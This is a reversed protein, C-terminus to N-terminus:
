EVILNGKMGMARHSGVSCYYEFTGVQDAVFEVYTSGGAEVQQTRADFEDVVWDHFGSTSTFEIRVRDGQNVRLEPNDVGGMMFKFNEGTIVFTVDPEDSDIVEDSGGVMEGDTSGNPNSENNGAYSWALYFGGAILVLVIIVVVILKSM